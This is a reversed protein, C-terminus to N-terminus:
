FPSNIFFLKQGVSFCKKTDYFFKKFDKLIMQSVELIRESLPNPLNSMPQTFHTFKFKLKFLIFLYLNINVRKNNETEGLEFWILFFFVPFYKRPEDVLSFAEELLIVNTPCSGIQFNPDPQKLALIRLKEAAM